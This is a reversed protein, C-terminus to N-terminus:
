FKNYCVTESLEKRDTHNSNPVADAAPYGAPLLATPVYHAPLAFNNRIKAPDFYAVWTSGLGLDAARLMMHTTVIAADTMGSEYSDFSRNWQEKEDYCILFALPANFHCATCEKLKNLAEEGQIVLIKQPQNNCATPAAQGAKLIELVLSDEVAKQEFSRVSFREKILLKFEM